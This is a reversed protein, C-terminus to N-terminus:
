WGATFAKDVSGCPFMSDTTIKTGTAHDTVGAAVAAVHELDFGVAQPETLMIGVRTFQSSLFGYM